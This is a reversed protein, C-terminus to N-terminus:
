WSTSSVISHPLKYAIKTDQKRRGKSLSNRPMGRPPAYDEGSGPARLALAEKGTAATGEQKYIGNESVAEKM